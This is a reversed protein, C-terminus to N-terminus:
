GGPVFAVTTPAGGRLVTLTLPRHLHDRIVAWLQALSAVPAGAAATIVDGAFLRGSAPSGPQMRLIRLGHVDRSTDFGWVHKGPPLTRAVALAEAHAAFDARLDELDPGCSSGGRPDCAVAMGEGCGDLLFYAKGARSQQYVALRGPDNAIEPPPSHEIPHVAIRDVPCSITRSFTAVVEDTLAARPAAEVQPPSPPSYRAVPADPVVARPASSSRPACGVALVLVAVAAPRIVM